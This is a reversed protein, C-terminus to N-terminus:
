NIKQFGSKQLSTELESYSQKRKEVTRKLDLWFSITREMHKEYDNDAVYGGLDDKIGDVYFTYMNKPGHVRSKTKCNIEIIFTFNHGERLIEKKYVPNTLKPTSNLKYNNIGFM